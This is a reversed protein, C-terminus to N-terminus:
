LIVWVQSTQLSKPLSKPLSQEADVDLCCWGKTEVSCASALTYIDLHATPCVKLVMEAIMFHLQLSDTRYRRVYQDLSVQSGFYKTTMELGYEFCYIGNLEECKKARWCGLSLDLM